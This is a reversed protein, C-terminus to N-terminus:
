IRLLNTWFASLSPAADCLSEAPCEACDVDGGYSIELIDQSDRVSPNELPFPVTGCITETGNIAGCYRIDGPIRPWYYLFDICMEEFSASGFPVDQNLNLTGFVCHTNIVDGPKITWGPTPQNRQIDFNYFDIRDVVVPASSEGGRRFTTIFQKGTAHMHNFHAFVNLEHPMLKTCESPCNYERHVLAQGAPIDRPDSVLVDGLWLVGVDHEAPGASYHLTVGSQDQVGSTGQLNNFHVELIIEKIAFPESGGMRFGTNPPLELSGVGPAWAFIVNGTCANGWCSQPTSLYKYDPADPPCSEYVLVHHVYQKSAEPIIMDIRSLHHDTDNLAQDYDPLRFSQCIYATANTPIDHPTYTLDITSIAREQTDRKAPPPIFTVATMGRNVPGHYGFEPSEGFAWLVNTNGPVIARDNLADGTDLARTVEVYTKGNSQSASVLTWDQCSDMTPMAFSTAYRDQISIKGNEPIATIFDAGPMAGSGAEGIGFGVWNLTNVELALRLMQGEVSWYIAYDSSFVQENAYSSADIQALATSIFLAICCLLASAKMMM